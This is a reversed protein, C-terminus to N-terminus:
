VHARGIENSYVTDYIIPGVSIDLAKMGYGLREVPLSVEKFNLDYIKFM